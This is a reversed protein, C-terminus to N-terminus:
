RSVRRGSVLQTGRRGVRPLHRAAAHRREHREGDDPRADDHEPRHRHRRRVGGRQDPVELLLLHRRREPRLLGGEDVRGPQARRLGEQPQPDRRHAQEPRPRVDRAREARVPPGPLHRVQDRRQRQGDQLAAPRQLALQRVPRGAPLQRLRLAQRGVASLRGLLPPRQPAKSSENIQGYKPWASSSEVGEYLDHPDSGTPDVTNLFAVWQKVTIELEGIGYQYSVGGVSQCGASTQPADSCSQYIADTFPVVAVSANGPAGVKVTRVTVTAATAASASVALIAATIVAGIVARTTPGATAM